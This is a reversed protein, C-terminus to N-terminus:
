WCCRKPVHQSQLHANGVIVRKKSKFLVFICCVFMEVLLEQLMSLTPTEHTAMFYLVLACLVFCWVLLCYCNFQLYSMTCACQVGSCAGLRFGETIANEEHSNWCCSGLYTTTAEGRELYLLSQFLMEKSRCLPKAWYGKAEWRWHWPLHWFLVLFSSFSDAFCISSAASLLIPVKLGYLWCCCLFNNVLGEVYLIETFECSM